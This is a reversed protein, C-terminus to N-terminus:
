NMKSLTVVKEPHFLHACFSMGQIIPGDAVVYPPAILDDFLEEKMKRKERIMTTQGLIIKAWDRKSTGVAL